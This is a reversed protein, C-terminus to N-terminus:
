EGVCIDTNTYLWPNSLYSMAITDSSAGSPLHQPQRKSRLAEITRCSSLSTCQLCAFLGRVNADSTPPLRYIGRREHAATTQSRGLLRDSPLEDVLRAVISELWISSPHVDESRESGWGLLHLLASSSHSLFTSNLSCSSVWPSQSQRGTRHQRRFPPSVGTKTQM